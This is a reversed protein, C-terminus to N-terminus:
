SEDGVGEKDRGHRKMRRQPWIEDKKVVMKELIMQLLLFRMENMLFVPIHPSGFLFENEVTLSSLTVDEETAM